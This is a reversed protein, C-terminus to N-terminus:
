EAKAGNAVSTSLPSATTRRQQFPLSNVIGLVLASFRYDNEPMKRVISAVVPKDYRELGRGLAYTLLKDTLGTVFANRNELLIAKLEKPGSFKKGGPLEGAPDIPLKGDTERWEGVANLNELGFGLPDMRSHCSACAPNKRHAEMQQRLTASNGVKTEDLPPVAPPPAPPPANLLNELIWKGRLVPSTRTSYSSVTLISAQALVGGGRNTGSMDVRRFEPGEIGPIGYFRALRENVFTHDSDLINLVSADQRILDEIFLETERRMALRLQDEFDPFNRFDPKVVDINKFQLWQGAFNEVLARAKPDRLMRKVEATLVAPQRLRDQMATRLLQEDPMSSWLFYSLRSALEVSNVPSYPAGPRDKEIRYLFDPAVLIGQLATAIGEGFNDGQTRATHFLKIYPAVEAATIPRRFARMAFQSIIKNACAPTEQACVFILRSSEASPKTEQTFPGGIDIAEYRNDIRTEIRDTKIKTGFKRLTEIDKETLKGRVTILPEPPRTSPSPGNYKPPLGHYNKLYTASVLHEGAKLTTRTEVIQGELDTADIEFEKVLKGDIFLAPHAPESQNPRHGNLILRINYEGDVPFRHIIHASHRTSMGTEDYHFLDKPVTPNGVLDNQRVPVPYHIMAPKLKEPGFIASRVAREAAYLYKEVLVPSLTLADSINDFGFATEDNPFNDAPRLDVGLLDRITNNYEARNLRRVTIRGPDPKATRDQRAFESELFATVAKVEPAPPKPLPPPPMEGNHLKSVVREWLERRDDFFKPDTLSALDVDGSPKAPNHCFNCNKKVFAFVASADAALLSPVLVAATLVLRAVM